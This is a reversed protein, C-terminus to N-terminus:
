SIKELKLLNAFEVCFGKFFVKREYGDLRIFITKEQHIDGDEYFTVKAKEGKKLSTLAMNIGDIEDSSLEPKEKRNRRKQMESLMEYQGSLSKFPLWKKMGRM